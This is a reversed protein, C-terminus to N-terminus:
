LGQPDPEPPPPASPTRYAECSACGCQLVLGSPPTFPAPASLTGAAIAADIEAREQEVADAHIKLHEDLDDIIASSKEVWLKHAQFYEALKKESVERNSAREAEESPVHELCWYGERTEPFITVSERHEKPAHRRCEGRGPMDVWRKHAERAFAACTACTPRGM